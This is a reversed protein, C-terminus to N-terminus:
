LVDLPVTSVAVLSSPLYFMAVYTLTKMVQSDVHTATLVTSTTKSDEKVAEAILKTRESTM